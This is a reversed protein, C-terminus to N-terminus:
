AVQTSTPSKRGSLTSLEAMSTDREFKNSISQVLKIAQEYGAARYVDPLVEMSVQDRQGRTFGAKMCIDFVNQASKKLNTNKFLDITTTLREATTLRSLLEGIKIMGTDSVKPGQEAQALRTVEAKIKAPDREVGESTRPTQETAKATPSQEKQAQSASVSFEPRKLVAGETRVANFLRTYGPERGKDIHALETQIRKKDEGVLGIIFNDHQDMRVVLRRESKANGVRADVAAKVESFISDREPGTAFNFITDLVKSSAAHLEALPDKKTEAANDATKAAEAKKADQEAVDDDGAAQDPDTQQQLQDVTPTVENKPLSGDLVGTALTPPIQFRTGDNNGGVIEVTTIMNEGVEFTFHGSIVDARLAEPVAKSNAFEKIAQRTAFLKDTQLSVVNEQKTVEAEDIVLDMDEIPSAVQVKGDPTRSFKGKGSQLEQMLTQIGSVAQELDAVEKGLVRLQVEVDPATLDIEAMQKQKVELDKRMAAGTKIAERLAAPTLRDKMIDFRAADMHEKSLQMIEKGKSDLLRAAGQPEHRLTSGVISSMLKGHAEPDNATDQLAKQIAAEHISRYYQGQEPKNPSAETKAPNEAAEREKKPLVKKIERIVENLEKRTRGYPTSPRIEGPKPPNDLDQIVSERLDILQKASLASLDIKRSVHEEPTKPKSKTIEADRLEKETIVIQNYKGFSDQQGLLYVGAEAADVNWERDRGQMKKFRLVDENLRLTEGQQIALPKKPKEAATGPAAKPKPESAKIRAEFVSQRYANYEESYSNKTVGQRALENENAVLFQKKGDKGTQELLYTGNANKAVEWQTNGSLSLHSPLEIRNKVDFLPLKAVGSSESSREQLKAEAIEQMKKNRLAAESTISPEDIRGYGRDISSAGEPQSAARPAYDAYNSVGTENSLDGANFFDEEASNTALPQPRRRVDRDVPAPTAPRVGDISRRPPEPMRIRPPATDLPAPPISPRTTEPPASALPPRSSRDPAFVPQAPEPTAPTRVGDVTPGLDVPEYPTSALPSQQPENALIPENAPARGSLMDALDKLQHEAENLQQRTTALETADPEVVLQDPNVGFHKSAEGYATPLIQLSAEVTKIGADVIKPLDEPSAKPKEPGGADPRQENEPHEYLETQEPRGVM